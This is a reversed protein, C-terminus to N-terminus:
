QQLERSVYDELASEWGRLPPLKESRMATYLPKPALGPFDSDKARHIPNDYGALAALRVIFDYYSVIGDNAIHWLGYPQADEVLKLVAHAADRAYTPSDVKDTAIQPERGESLWQLTKDVFGPAANRRAGYMTPFRVVYHKPCWTEALREGALKTLAYISGAKAADSETYPTSALGDFVAHSSTQIYVCDHAAAAKAVDRAATAHMQFALAPQEECPNIGVLAVCNLIADPRNRSICEGVSAVDLIDLDTHSPAIVTHDHEDCIRQFETGLCGSAGFVLFKM